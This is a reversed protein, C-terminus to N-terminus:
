KPVPHRGDKTFRWGEKPVFNYFNHIIAQTKQELTVGCGFHTPDEYPSPPPLHPNPPVCLPHPGGFFRFDVGNQLFNGVEAVNGTGYCVKDASHLISNNVYALAPSVTTERYGCHANTGGAVIEWILDGGAQQTQDWILEGQTWNPLVGPFKVNWISTSGTADAVAGFTTCGVSTAFVAFGCELYGTFSYEEVYPKTSPNAELVIRIPLPDSVGAVVEASTQAKVYGAKAVSVFYTAPQLGEFGFAGNDLTMTSKGAASLAVLAGALPRYGADLVVGRVVGTDPTASVSVGELSTASGSPTGTGACGSLVTMMLLLLAFWRM